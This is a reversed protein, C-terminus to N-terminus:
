KATSTMDGPAPLIMVTQGQLQGDPLVKVNINIYDGTKIDSFKADRQLSADGSISLAFSYVVSDENVKVTLSDGSNNLTINRGDINMVQGYAVISPVTRSSLSKILTQSKELEPAVKQAQYFIGLGGGLM